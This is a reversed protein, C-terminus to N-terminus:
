ANKPITKVVLKLMAQAMAQSLQYANFLKEHMRELDQMMEERGEDTEIKFNHKSYFSHILENRIRLAEALTSEINDTVSTHKKVESIIMGLTSKNIKKYIENAEINKEEKWLQEKVGHCSMLLTGLELELLQAAEATIGFKRYIEDRTTM